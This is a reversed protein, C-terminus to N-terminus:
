EMSSSNCCRRAVVVLKWTSGYMGSPSTRMWEPSKVFQPSMPSTILNLASIPSDLSLPLHVFCLVVKWSTQWVFVLDDNGSVVLQSKLIAFLHAFTLQCSKIHEADILGVFEKRIAGVQTVFRVFHVTQLDVSGRPVRHGSVRKITRSSLFYQVFPILNRRLNINQHSVSRRKSVSVEISPVLHVANEASTGLQQVSDFLADFWLVVYESM